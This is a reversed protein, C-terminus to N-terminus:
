VKASRARESWARSQNSGPQTLVAQVKSIASSSPYHDDIPRRLCWAGFIALAVEDLSEHKKAAHGIQIALSYLLHRGTRGSLSLLTAGAAASDTAVPTAAEIRDAVLKVGVFKLDLIRVAAALGAFAMESTPLDEPADLMQRCAGVVDELDKLLIPLEGIAEYGADNAAEETLNVSIFFIDTNVERNKGDMNLKRLLEIFVHTKQVGDSLWVNIQKVQFFTSPSSNGTSCREGLHDFLNEGVSRVFQRLLHGNLVM